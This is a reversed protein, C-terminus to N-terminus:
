YIFAMLVIRFYVDRKYEQSQDIQDSRLGGSLFDYESCLAKRYVFV